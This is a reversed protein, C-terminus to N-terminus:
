AASSTSIFWVLVVVLSRPRGPDVSSSYVPSDPIRGGSTGAHRQSPARGKVLWVSGTWVPRSILLIYRGSQAGRWNQHSSVGACQSAKWHTMGQSEESHCEQGRHEVPCLLPLRKEVSLLDLCRTLLYKVFRQRETRM